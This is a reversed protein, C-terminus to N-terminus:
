WKRPDIIRREHCAYKSFNMKRENERINNFAKTIQQLQSVNNIGVVAYDIEEIDYIYKLAGEMKSMEANKLNLFYEELMPFVRKFQNPLSSIENLLLGQLFISRVHIEVNKRKLEKFILGDDLRQDLVNIPLQIMDFSYKNYLEDIELRDYVSVGIKKVLGREKFEMLKEYLRQSGVKYLDKANHIFLGDIADGGLTRLSQQFSNEIEVLDENEINDSKIYVAKTIVKFSDLNQKGLVEESEGYAPSTDIMQINQNKAHELIRKVEDTSTKGIQNTVGYDLGFQVTGIALKM